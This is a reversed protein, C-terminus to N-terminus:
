LPAPGWEGAGWNFAGWPPPTFLLPSALVPRGWGWVWSLCLLSSSYSVRPPVFWKSRGQRGLSHIERLARAFRCSSPPLGSCWPLALVSVCLPCAARVLLAVPGLERFAYVVQCPMGATSPLPCGSSAARWLCRPPRSPPFVLPSPLAVLLPVPGARKVHRSRRAFVLLTTGRGLYYHRVASRVLGAALCGGRWGM